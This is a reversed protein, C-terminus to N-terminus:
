EYRLVEVIDLKSTKRIIQITSLGVVLLTSVISVLVQIWSITVNSSSLIGVLAINLLTIIVKSLFLSVASSFVAIMLVEVLLLNKIDKEKFGIAKMIAFEKLRNKISVRMSSSIIAMSIIFLTGVISIGILMIIKPLVSLGESTKLSYWITLAETEEEIKDAVNKIHNIDDVVVFASQKGFKLSDVNQIDTGYARSIMIKAMHESILIVNQPWKRLIPQEYFWAVRVDSKDRIGKGEAVKRNYSIKTKDLLGKERLENNLIVENDQLYLKKGTIALIDKDSCPLALVNEATKDSEVACSILNNYFVSTVGDFNSIKKLLDECIEDGVAEIEIYRLNQNSVIEKNSTNKVDEVLGFTVNLSIIALTLIIFISKNNKFQKLFNLTGLELENKFNM